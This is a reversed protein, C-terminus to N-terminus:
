AFIYMSLTCCASLPQSKSKRTPEDPALTGRSLWQCAAHTAHTHAFSAKGSKSDRHMEGMWEQDSVHCLASTHRSHRQGLWCAILASPYRMPYHCDSPLSVISSTVKACQKGARLRPKSPWPAVPRGNWLSSIRLECKLPLWCVTTRKRVVCLEGTSGLGSAECCMAEHRGRHRFRNCPIPKM